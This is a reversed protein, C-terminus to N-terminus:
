ESGHKMGHPNGIEKRKRLQYLCHSGTGNDCFPVSRKGGGLSKHRYLWGILNYIKSIRM